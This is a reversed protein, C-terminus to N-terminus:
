ASRPATVVLPQPVRKAAVLTDIYQVVDNMTRLSPLNQDSAEVGFIDEIQFILEILGLSDVGLTSLEVEPGLQELNLKYDKILIGQLTEITNM